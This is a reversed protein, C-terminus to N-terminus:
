LTGKKRLNEIIAELEDEPLMDEFGSGPSYRSARYILEQFDPPFPSEIEIAQDMAAIVKLAIQDVSKQITSHEASLNEQFNDWDGIAQREASLIEAWLRFSDLHVSVTRPWNMAMLNYPESRETGSQRRFDCRLIVTPKGLSKAFAFEIVTGSELELGDFRVLVIDSKLVNALDKNRIFSEMDPRDIQQLEFSQPLFFEYKGKSLRWVAEKLLVNTTLEDQMFLGGASYVMYPGRNGKSNEQGERSQTIDM